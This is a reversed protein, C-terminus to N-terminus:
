PGFGIMQPFADEPLCAESIQDKEMHIPQLLMGSHLLFFFSRDKIM